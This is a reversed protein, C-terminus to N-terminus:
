GYRIEIEDPESPCDCGLKTEVYFNQENQARKM